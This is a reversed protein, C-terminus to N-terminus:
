RLRWGMHYRQSKGVSSALVVRQLQALILVGGDRYRAIDAGLVMISARRLLFESIAVHAAM